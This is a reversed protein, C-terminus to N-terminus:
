AGVMVWENAARKRLSVEGFQPVSGDNRVDVGSAGVITVDDSSRNYVGVITGIPFAVASNLPVTVNVASSANMQVIKGADGLALTYAATQEATEQIERTFTVIDDANDKLAGDITDMNTNIDGIDVNDTLEPKILNFNPTNTAM